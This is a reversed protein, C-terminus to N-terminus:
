SSRCANETTELEKRQKITGIYKQPQYSVEQLVLCQKVTRGDTTVEWFFIWKQHPSEERRSEMRRGLMLPKEWNEIAKAKDILIELIMSQQQNPSRLKRSKLNKCAKSGTKQNRKNM